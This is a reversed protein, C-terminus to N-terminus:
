RENMVLAAAGIIGADNGLVAQKVLIRPNLGSGYCYNDIFKQLPEILAAGEHSIGGGIIFADPHIINGLSILGTAIYKLYNRVVEKATEDGEKAALFATRGSVKGQKRFVNHLLSDPHSEMARKTQKILATASAYSEWCGSRGCNCPEGDMQIVMHGSEAGASGAGEILNGDYIIGSGVGTGLTIFIISDYESGGGFRLEGLAACNADNNIKIPLNFYKHFEAVIPVERWGINAAVTVVGRRSDATGPIGIGIGVLSNPDVELEGCMIYISDAIRKIMDAYGSEYETPISRSMVMKGHVDVVGIKISMGGIDIGIYFM